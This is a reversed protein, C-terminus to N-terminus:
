KIYFNMNKQLHAGNIVKGSKLAIKIETKDAKIETKIYDGPIDNINDVEVSESKRYGCKFTGVELKDIGKTKLSYEINSKLLEVNREKQKKLTALRNIEAKIGEIDSEVNKIYKATNEVKEEISVDIMELTDNIAQLEEETEATDLLAAVEQYDRNLEYISAM